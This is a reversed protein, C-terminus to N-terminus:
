EGYIFRQITQAAADNDYALMTCQYADVGRLAGVAGDQIEVGEFGPVTLYPSDVPFSFPAAAWAASWAAMDEETIDTIQDKVFLKLFSLVTNSDMRAMIPRLGEIVARNKMDWLKYDEMAMTLPDGSEWVRDPISSYYALFGVAGLEQPGAQAIQTYERHMSKSLSKMNGNMTTYEANGLFEEPIELTIPFLLDYVDAIPEFSGYKYQYILYRDIKIGYTNEYAKVIEPLDCQPLLSMPISLEGAERTVAFIQTRFYFNIVKVSHDTLNLSIIMPMIPFFTKGLNESALVLVNVTQSENGAQAAQAGPVAFLVILAMIIAISKNLKRM